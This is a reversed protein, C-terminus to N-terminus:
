SAPRRSSAPSSCRSAPSRARRRTSSPRCSSTSARRWRCAGSAVGLDLSAVLGVEIAAQLKRLGSVALTIAFYGGGGFLTIAVQFPNEQTCFAFDLTVPLNTNYPIDLTASLAMNSITIVGLTADPLPLSYSVTVGTPKVDIRPGLDGDLSALFGELIKIFSLADGFDVSQVVSHVSAKKGTMASYTFSEFAVTIFTTDGFLSIGFHELEGTIRYTPATGPRLYTTTTALLHFTTAPGVTVLGNSSSTLQASTYRVKFTITIAVPQNTVPDDHQVVTVHPLATALDTLGTAM